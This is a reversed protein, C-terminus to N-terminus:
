SYVVASGFAVLYNLIMLANLMYLLTVHSSQIVPRTLPVNILELLLYIRAEEFVSVVLSRIDKGDAHQPDSRLM